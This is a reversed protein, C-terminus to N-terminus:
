YFNDLKKNNFNINKLNKNKNVFKKIENFYNSKSIIVIKNDRLIIILKKLLM